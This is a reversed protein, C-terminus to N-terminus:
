VIDRIHNTHNQHFEAYMSMHDLTLFRSPLHDIDGLREDTKGSYEWPPSPFILSMLPTPKSPVQHQSGVQASNNREPADLRCGETSPGTKSAGGLSDVRSINNGTAGLRCEQNSGIRPAGGPLVDRHSSGRSPQRHKAMSKTPSTTRRKPSTVKM